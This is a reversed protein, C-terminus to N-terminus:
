WIDEYAKERKEAREKELKDHIKDPNENGVEILGKAKCIEERHKKNKVIMGLAPSYEASEVKEGIFTVQGCFIRYGVKKCDPCKLPRTAVYEKIDMFYDYQKNCKECFSEYLPPMM